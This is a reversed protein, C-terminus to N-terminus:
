LYSIIHIGIVIIYGNWPRSLWNSFALWIKFPLTIRCSLAFTDTQKSLIWREIEGTCNYNKKCIKINYATWILLILLAQHFGPFLCNKSKSSKKWVQLFFNQKALVAFFLLFIVCLAYPPFVKPRENALSNFFNKNNESSPQYFQFINSLVDTKWMRCYFLHFIYFISICIIDAKM